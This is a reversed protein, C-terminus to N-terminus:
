SLDSYLKLIIQVVIYLKEWYCFSHLTKISLRQDNSNTKRQIDELLIGLLRLLSPVLFYRFRPMFGEKIRGFRTANEKRQERLHFFFM